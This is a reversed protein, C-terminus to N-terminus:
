AKPNIVGQPFILAINPNYQSLPFSFALKWKTHLPDPYLTSGHNFVRRGKLPRFILIGTMIGMFPLRRWFRYLFIPREVCFQEPPPAPLTNPKLNQPKGKSFAEPHLSSHLVNCDTNGACTHLGRYVNGLHRNLVGWPNM